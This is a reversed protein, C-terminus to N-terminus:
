ADSRKRRPKQAKAIQKIFQWEREKDMRRLRVMLPAGPRLVEPGIAIPIPRQDVKIVALYGPLGLNFVKLGKLRGPQTDVMCHAGIDDIYRHLFIPFTEPPGPDQCLLMDRIQAEYSGLHVKAFSPRRSVSMRWLVSLLFLKLRSYDYEQVIYHTQTTHMDINQLLLKGAYEDLSGFFHNDCDACLINDDYEGILTRKPYKAPNKFVQIMPESPYPSQIPMHLCQPIIHAKILKKDEGCLQCGM